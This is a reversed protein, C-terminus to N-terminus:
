LTFNNIGWPPLQLNGTVLYDPYVYGGSSVCVKKGTSDEKQWQAFLTVGYITGGSYGEILDHWGTFALHGAVGEMPNAKNIAELVTIIETSNVSQSQNVGHLLLYMSDYSGVATYLPDSSYNGQFNDWFAITKTTKNTRVTSQLIVEYECDGGTEGWYSDLQAMVDIGALLCKPQLLAYQSMMPIGAQASVLPICLQTKAAEIQNWYTAFDTSDATPSFPIETINVWGLDALGPAGPVLGNFLYSLPLSWDLNERLIAVNTVNKSLVAEMYGRLYALYGLIEGGLASSNIPMVRFFYKYTDYSNNLLGTISDTAAGTGLFLKKAAMISPSYALVAETRFGGVIFDVNDQTLMKTAATTAKSVDFTADAEHTDESIIGFYYTTGNIVVGGATNIEDCALYAGKWAGEGQIESMPGLIGVRIIQDSPVGGPAGPTKLKGTVVKGYPSPLFIWLGIGVGAAVVAIIVVALIKKTKPEM